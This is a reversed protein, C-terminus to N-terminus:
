KGTREATPKVDEFKKQSNAQTWRSEAAIPAGTARELEALGADMAASATYYATQVDLLLNQSDILTPFEARNNQYAATAAKFVAEAQPLLTDRYIRVRKQASLTAIQAERVELFVANARAELEAQAVSTAAEAQKAEGDHRARNLQPLNMALEAMYANRSSSGAPMVMYGLGVTFDPKLAMRTTKSQDQTKAIARHLATLEPRHELAMRELDDLAPLRDLGRYSGAMALPEDPPRNMLANLRARTTDREEDLQILHEGLRTLAMQARLVDAQPVKGTTYQALTIALAEKLLALQREHVHMQGANRLLDACSKRVEAAVQQRTSELEAEAVRAEDGEVQARMSRKERSVFTQQVMFMTQAQNLDWPKALPTGWDRFQFMPDDLSGATAVKMRALSLRRVSARIEPNSELAIAVAQEVSLSATPEVGLPEAVIASEPAPALSISIAPAVSAPAVSKAASPSLAARQAGARMALALVAPALCVFIKV